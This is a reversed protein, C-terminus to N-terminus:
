KGESMLMEYLLAILEKNDLDAKELRVLKQEITEPPLAPNEIKEIEETSLGEIWENKEFNWRKKHIQLPVSKNILFGDEFPTISNFSDDVLVDKQFWGMKDTYPVLKM